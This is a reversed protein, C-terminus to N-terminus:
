TGEITLQNYVLMAYGMGKKPSGTKRWENLFLKLMQESIADGHDADHVLTALWSQVEISADEQALRIQNRHDRTLM